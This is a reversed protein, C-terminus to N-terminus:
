GPRKCHHTPAQEPLHKRIHGGFNPADVPLHAKSGIGRGIRTERVAASRYTRKTRPASDSGSGSPVVPVVPVVPLPPHPFFTHTHKETNECYVPFYMCVTFEQIQL